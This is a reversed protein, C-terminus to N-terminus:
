DVPKALVAQKLIMKSDQIYLNGYEIQELDDANEKPLDIHYQFGFFQEDTMPQIDQHGTVQLTYSYTDIWRSSGWSKVTIGTYGKIKGYSVGKATSYDIPTDPVWIVSNIPLDTDGAQCATLLLLVSFTKM